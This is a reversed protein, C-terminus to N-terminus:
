PTEASDLLKNTSDLAQKIAKARAGKSTRQWKDLSRQIFDDSFKLSAKLAPRANAIKRAISSADDPKIEGKKILSTLKKVIVEPKRSAAGTIQNFVTQHLEKPIDLDEISQRLTKTAERVIERYAPLVMTAVFFFGFSPLEEVFWDPPAKRLDQADEEDIHGSVALTDVYEGTAYQVLAELDEPKVKDAFYKLRDTIKKIEQRIGPVGSYGFKAAMDELSMGDSKDEKEPQYDGFYDIKQGTRFEEFERQEDDSLMEKLVNQIKISVAEKVHGKELDDQEDKKDSNSRDTADDLLKHLQKYYFEVQDVPVLKSIASAARSLEEVGSPAFEEDEIPPRQVSLQNAMQNGPVIPQGEPVTSEDNDDIDAVSGTPGPRDYIGYAIDELFIDDSM